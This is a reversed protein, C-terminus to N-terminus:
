KTQVALQLEVTSDGAVPQSPEAPIPPWRLVRALQPGAVVTYGAAEVEGVFQKMAAPIAEVPIRHLRRAVSLNAPLSHFNTAAMARTPSRPDLWASMAGNAGVSVLLGHALTLRNPPLSQHLKIWAPFMKDTPAAARVVTLAARPGVVLKSPTKTQAPAAAEADVAGAVVKNIAVTYPKANATVEGAVKEGARWSIRWRSAFRVGDVDEWGSMACRLSDIGLKDLGKSRIHVGLPNLEDPHQLVVLVFDTGAIKYSYRKSATENAAEIAFIEEASDLTYPPKRLPVLLAADHAGRYLWTRAADLYACPLVVGANSEFCSSAALGFVTQSEPYTIRIGKGASVAITTSVPSSPEGTTGTYTASLFKSLNEEGAEDIRKNIYKAVDAKGKFPYKAGSEGRDSQVHTPMNTATAGGAQGVPSASAPLAVALGMDKGVPPAEPVQKTTPQSPAKASGPEGAATGGAGAANDGAAPKEAAATPDAPGDPRTVISVIFGAIALLAVIMWIKGGSSQSM